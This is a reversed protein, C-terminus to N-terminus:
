GGGGGSGGVQKLTVAASPNARNLGKFIWLKFCADAAVPVVAPIGSPGNGGNGGGNGGSGARFVQAGLNRYIDETDDLSLRRLCLAAALVGGTSTGAVLDFAAHLPMPALRAALTRLLRLTALGKMGGGDMALIRVGRPRHVPDAGTGVYHAGV